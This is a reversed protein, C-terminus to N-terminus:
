PIARYAADLTNSLRTHGAASPHPCGGIATDQIDAAAFAPAARSVIRPDPPGVPPTAAATVGAIIANNLATILGRVSAVWMPDIIPVAAPAVRAPLLGVVWAPATDRVFMLGFNSIDINGPTLDYYLMWVMKDAGAATVTRLIATVDATIAAHQAPGDYRPVGIREFFYDNFIGRIRMRCSGGNTVIGGRGGAADWQVNSRPVVVTAWELARCKVLQSLVETWNTNNVGGTTVFYAKRNDAKAQRIVADALPLPAFARNWQNNCSDRAGAAANRIDGTTFGTRAFNYYEVINPNLNDYYRGAYSLRAHNGTLGRFDASTRSCTGTGHGWQNHSSTVSDGTAVLVTRDPSPIQAPNRCDIRDARAVRLREGIDPQQFLPEEEEATPCFSSPPTPNPDPDVPEPSAPESPEPSASPTIDPGPPSPCPSPSTGPSTSSTPSAPTTPPSSGTPTPNLCERERRVEALAAEVDAPLPQGEPICPDFVWETDELIRVCPPDLRPVSHPLPRAQAPKPNIALIAAQIMFAATALAATAAIVRTRARRGSKTGERSQDNGAPPEIPLNV